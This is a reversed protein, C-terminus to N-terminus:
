DGSGDTNALGPNVTTAISGGLGGMSVDNEDEATDDSIAYIARNGKRAGM